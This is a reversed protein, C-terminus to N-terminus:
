KAIQSCTKNLLYLVFSPISEEQSGKGCYVCNFLSTDIGWGPSLEAGKRM